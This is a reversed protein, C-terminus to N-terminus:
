GRAPPSPHPQLHLMQARTLGQPPAIGGLEGSALLLPHRARARAIHVQATNSSGKAAWSQRDAGWNCCCSASTSRCRRALGAPSGRSSSGVPEAILQQHDRDRGPAPGPGAGCCTNSCGTLQATARDSACLFREVGAAAAPPRILASSQPSSRGRAQLLLCAEGMHADPAVWRRDSARGAGLLGAV